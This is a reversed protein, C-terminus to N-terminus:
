LVFVNIDLSTRLAIVNRTELSSMIKELIEKKKCNCCFPIIKFCINSIQRRTFSCPRIHYIQRPTFRSVTTLFIKTQYSLYEEILFVSKTLPPPTVRKSNSYVQYFTAFSLKKRCNQLCTM